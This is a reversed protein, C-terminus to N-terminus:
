FLQLPTEEGCMMGAPASPCLGRGVPEPVPDSLGVFHPPPRWLSNRPVRRLLALAPPWSESMCRLSLSVQGPPRTPLM